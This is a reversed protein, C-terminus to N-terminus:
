NPSLYVKFQPLDHFYGLDPLPNEVLKLRLNSQNNVQQESKATRNKQKASKAKVNRFSEHM